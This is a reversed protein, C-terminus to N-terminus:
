QELKLLIAKEAARMVPKDADTMHDYGLLHLISHICLYVTEREFSQNYETAQEACRVPNILVDGLNVPLRDDEELIEQKSAFVPFSLVDTVRDTQRYDRNLEQIREPTIFSVSVETNAHIDEHELSAEIAQKLLQELKSSIPSDTENIFDINFM